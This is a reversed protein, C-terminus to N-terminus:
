RSTPTKVVLVDCASVTRENILDSELLRSMDYYQDCSEYMAAYNYSGAEGYVTTRYPETTPEWTSHREM